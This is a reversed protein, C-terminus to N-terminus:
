RTLRLTVWFNWKKNMQQSLNLPKITLASSEGPPRPGLGAWAVAKQEYDYHTVGDLHTHPPPFGAIVLMGDM